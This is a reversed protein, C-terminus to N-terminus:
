KTESSTLNSCRPEKFSSKNVVNYGDEGDDTFLAKTHIAHLWNLCRALNNTKWSGITKSFMIMGQSLKQIEGVLIQKLKTRKGELGVSLMM